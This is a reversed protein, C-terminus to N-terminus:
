PQQGVITPSQVKKFTKLSSKKVEGETYKLLDTMTIDGKTKMLKELLTFTFLGHGTDKLCYATEANGSALCLTVNGQPAIAAPKILVGRNAELKDGNKDCGNFPADIIITTTRTKMNNLEGMLQKLNYGTSPLTALTADTPLLYREGSKEDTAGLGSYYVIFDVSGEYVEAIDQMRKVMKALNGFTADEYYHVNHESLGFTKRCYERFIKGDNIAFDSGKFKEYNENAIIFAFTEEQSKGTVPINRDVETGAVGNLLTMNTGTLPNTLLSMQGNKMAQAVGDKFPLAREYQAPILIKGDALAAYGYKGGIQKFTKYDFEGGEIFVFTGESYADIYDFQCLVAEKRQKLSYLGWKGGQYPAYAKFFTGGKTVRIYDIEGEKDYDGSCIYSYQTPIVEEGKENVLGLGKGIWVHCFKEDDIFPMAEISDYKCVLFEKGSKDVLGYKGNLRVQVYKDDEDDFDYEDVDDYICPLLVKGAKNIVGVKGNLKVACVTEGDSFPYTSVDDYKCPIVERGKKDVVGCKKNLTVGCYEKGESFPYADIEDYKCPIIERGNKDIAGVKGNLEVECCGGKKLQHWGVDNYKFDVLLKGERSYIAELGNKKISYCNSSSNYYFEVNPYKQKLEATVSQIEQAWVYPLALLALLFLISIRKM